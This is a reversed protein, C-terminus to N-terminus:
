LLNRTYIYVYMYTYVYMNTYTCIYIYLFLLTSFPGNTYRLPRRSSQFRPHKLIRIHIYM